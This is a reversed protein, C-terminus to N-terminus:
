AGVIALLGTPPLSMYLDNEAMGAVGSAPRSVPVVVSDATLRHKGNQHGRMDRIQYAAWILGAMLLSHRAASIRPRTAPWSTSPM